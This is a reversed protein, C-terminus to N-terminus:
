DLVKGLCCFGMNENVEIPEYAPNFSILYLQGHHHEQKKVYVNGDYFFIGIEGDEVSDQQRVYLLDGNHLRPEMSDGKVDVTYSTQVPADPSLEIMEYPAEDLWNGTGTSAGIDYHVSRRAPMDIVNNPINVQATAAHEQELKQEEWLVNVTEAFIRDSIRRRSNYLDFYHEPITFEENQKKVGLLCDASVGFFKSFKRILSVTANRKGNEYGAYTTQAMGLAEAIESQSLGRRNRLTLLRKGFDISDKSPEM